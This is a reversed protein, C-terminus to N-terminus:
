VGPGARTRHPRQGGALFGLALGCQGLYYTIWVLYEHWPVATKFKNVALLSDSILFLVAGVPVWPTELRALLALSVMATIAGIYLVVPVALGDVSPVIWASLAASGTLVAAVGAVRPLGADLPRARNRVFLAIYTLHALLFAALGFTFFRPDLDLLVDGATSFVLALALLGADPRLARLQLALLALGGVACGKIAASGPFPQRSQSLLYAASAMASLYLLPRYRVM